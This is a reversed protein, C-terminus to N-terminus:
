LAPFSPKKLLNKFGTKDNFQLPCKLSTTLGLSISPSKRALAITANSM